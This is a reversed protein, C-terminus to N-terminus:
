RIALTSCHSAGPALTVANDAMNGTEVCVMDRYAAPPFCSLRLAKDIWPNWVVASASHRTAIRIQRQNGADTITLAPPVDLYIRDVEADIGIDGQQTKRTWDDLTDIYTCGELGSVQTQAIAAVAFHTHLAGTFTFARSDRNVVTFDLQLEAGVRVRLTLDCAFPWLPTCSANLNLTLELETLDPAPQRIASLTWERGRVAGHAPAPDASIQSRVAGPNRQLDGFWPWCVPIGGRLSTGPRFDCAPSLWILEPEGHRQYHTVQAGQLFVTASAAQNRVGIGILSKHLEVTIGQLTGFRTYLDQMHEALNM